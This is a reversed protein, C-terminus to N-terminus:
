RDWLVGERQNEGQAAANGSVAVRDDPTPPLFGPLETEEIKRDPVKGARREPDDTITSKAPRDCVKPTGEAHADQERGILARAPHPREVGGKVLDHPDAVHDRKM